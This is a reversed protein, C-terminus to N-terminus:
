TLIIRSTFPSRPSSIPLASAAANPVTSEGGGRVESRLKTHSSGDPDSEEAGVRETLSEVATLLQTQTHQIQRLADLVAPDPTAPNM